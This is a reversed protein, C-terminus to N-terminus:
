EEPEWAESFERDAFLEALGTIQKLRRVEDADMGLERQIAEDREGAQYMERVLESMAEIKHEGRARNHQVTAAIRAMRDSRETRIQTIPLRGHLGDRISPVETGVRRRHFGDVVTFDFDDLQEPHGVIPMTYGNEDVSVALLKMEPPAVANPNYDNARVRESKVWRVFDVPHHKLPSVEHLAARVDNLADIREDDSLASLLTVLEATTQAIM